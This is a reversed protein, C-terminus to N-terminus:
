TLGQGSHVTTGGIERAAKNSPALALVGHEGFYTRLLPVLIDNIMM